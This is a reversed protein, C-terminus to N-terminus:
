EILGFTSYLIFKCKIPKFSISMPGHRDRLLIIFIISRANSLAQTPPEVVEVAQSVAMNISVLTPLANSGCIM